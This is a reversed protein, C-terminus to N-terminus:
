YLVNLIASGNANSAEFKKSSQPSSFGKRQLSKCYQKFFTWNEKAWQRQTKTLNNSLLETMDSEKCSLPSLM